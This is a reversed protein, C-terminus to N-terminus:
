ALTRLRSVVSELEQYRDVANQAFEGYRPHTLYSSDVLSGPDIRAFDTKQVTASAMTDMGEAMKSRM